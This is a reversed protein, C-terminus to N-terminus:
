MNRLSFADCFGRALLESNCANSEHKNKREKFPNGRLGGEGKMRPLFSRVIKKPVITQSTFLNLFFLIFLISRLM